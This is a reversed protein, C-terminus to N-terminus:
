YKWIYLKQNRFSALCPPLVQGQQGTCNRLCSVLVPLCLLPCSWHHLLFLNPLFHKTFGHFLVKLSLFSEPLGNLTEPPPLLGKDMNNIPCIPLQQDWTLSYDPPPPFVKLIKDIGAVRKGILFCLQLVQLHTWEDSPSFNSSSYFVPRSTSSIHGSCRSPPNVLVHVQEIFFLLLLFYFLLVTVVIFIIYHCYYYHIYQLVKWFSGLDSSLFM